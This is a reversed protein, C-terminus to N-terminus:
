GLLQFDGLYQETCAKIALCNPTSSHRAVWILQIVNHVILAHGQFDEVGDLADPCSPHPCWLLADPDFYRLHCDQVHRQLHDPRSFSFIRASHPM